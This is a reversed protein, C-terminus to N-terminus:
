GARDESLGQSPRDCFWELIRLAFSSAPIIIVRLVNTFSAAAVPAANAKGPIAGPSVYAGNIRVMGEEPSAIGATPSPVHIVNLTPSSGTSRSSHASTIAAKKAAPPRIISEEGM